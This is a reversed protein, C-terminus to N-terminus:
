VLTFAEDFVLISRILYNLMNIILYDYISLKFFRLKFFILILIM